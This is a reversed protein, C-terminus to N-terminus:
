LDWDRRSTTDPLLGEVVTEYVVRRIHDGDSGIDDPQDTVQRVDRGFIMQVALLAQIYNGRENPHHNFFYNTERPRVGTHLSKAQDPELGPTFTFYDFDPDPLPAYDYAEDFRVNQAATAWPLITNGTRLARYEYARRLDIYHRTETYTEGSLLFETPAGLVRIDLGDMAENDEGYILLDNRYAMTQIYFRQADPLRARVTDAFALVNVLNNLSDNGQKSGIQDTVVDWEDVTNLTAISQAFTTSRSLYPEYEDLNRLLLADRGRLRADYDGELAGWGYGKVTSNGLTYAEEMTIEHDRHMGAVIENGVGRVVVVNATAGVSAAAGRLYQLFGHSYSNGFVLINQEKRYLGITVSDDSEVALTDTFYEPHETVLQVIPAASKALLGVPTGSSMATAVGGQPSLTVRHVSTRGQVTSRVLYAGAARGPTACFTHTGRTFVRTTRSVLRGGPTFVAFTSPTRGDSFFRVGRADVGLAAPAAPEFSVGTSLNLSFSGDQATTTSLSQNGAVSVVAGALPRGKRGLVIGDVAHLSTALVLISAVALIGRHATRM